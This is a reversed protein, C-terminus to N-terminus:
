RHRPDAVRLRKSASQRPTMSPRSPMRRAPCGSTSTPSPSTPPRTPACQRSSSPWALGTTEISPMTAVAKSKRSIPAKSPAEPATGTTTLDSTNGVGCAEARWAGTAVSAQLGHRLRHITSNAINQACIACDIALGYLSSAHVCVCEHLIAAKRGETRDVRDSRAGRELDRRLPRVVGHEVEVAPEIDRLIRASMARSREGFAIDFVALDFAREMLPPEVDRAALRSGRGARVRKPDPGHM